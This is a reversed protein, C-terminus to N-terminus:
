REEINVTITGPAIYQNNQATISNKTGTENAKNFRTIRVRDVGAVNYIGDIIDSADVTLGLEDSNLSASINDSIDQKVTETKNEFASTVVIYATVDVEIEEAQKVLVDATIPRINEIAQTADVILKNYEYNITIRENEKPATYDYDVSFTANIDPQNLTKISVDGIITGQANQFGSIKSISDIHGFRKETILTGNKSFFLDEYDNREAYYFEVYLITGTTIASNTNALGVVTRSTGTDLARSKDWKNDYLGYNTLDYTTNTSAITGDANLSVSKLSMVRAIYINSSLSATDSLNKVRRILLSLDVTNDQTVTYTGTVKNITTGVFRITGSTLLGSITTRLRSPSNRKNKVVTTGSYENQVPQYGGSSLGNTGNTAVPLASVNTKPLINVFNAVYNTQVSQGNIVSADTPLTITYNTAEGSGYADSIFVNSLNYIVDVNDGINGLTDTPLTINKNTISGDDEKTNYVEPNGSISTDTISFINSVNNAVSIVKNTGIISSESVFTNVSLVRSVPLSTTVTKNGYADISVTNIEDRVYNPFGWDVSDQATNLNDKPDLNDFDIYPDYSYIWTYDVQLIDSTTPLTRGSIQVRGTTNIDGSDDPSQDVIVYREGTTVNFVRNVTRVPKHKTQIYLNTSTVTSNENTIEIDQTIESIKTVDTFGLGDVSNFGTKTNAEGELEIKNSTWRLKDLGFPSGSAIGTDKVLKYNGSLNGTSDLFQEVFNPGSLSGSVSILSSIPQEPIDDGNSLAAVRRSNITLSTSPTLSSQGLVYDNSSDTPDSLGSQDNYIFSDTGSQANTGLVYIDVRGGAGPESVVLNGDSNTGVITGDRTMLPDGPEVVLADIASALTLITSRYAVSTGVNTGAFVSLIRARLETDSEPDTGGTFSTLNTVNNVDSAGTTTVSYTGINGISGASQAEVSVEIAFTDNIGATALSQNLRTATARLSNAQSTSISIDSVTLFPIGGRTRVVTDSPITIDTDISGFTFVVTGIAKTGSNKTIGFNKAYNILDTGSINLISQLSSLERLAEYIDAVQIAQLDVMLDRAVTGPKTDLSPQTLRLQQLMDLVINNLSKFTVM